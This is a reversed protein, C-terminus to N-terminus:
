KICMIDGYAGAFVADDWGETLMGVSRGNYCQGVSNSSCDFFHGMDAVMTFGYTQDSYLDKLSGSSNQKITLLEERTPVRGGQAECAKMVGARYGWTGDSTTVGECYKYDESSTNSCDLVLNSVGGKVDVWYDGIKQASDSFLEPKSTINGSTDSSDSSGSSDSLDSSDSVDSSAIYENLLVNSYLNFEFVDQDVKNPGSPGNVDVIVRASGYNVSGDDNISDDSMGTMCVTTGINIKACYLGESNFFVHPSSSETNDSSFYTDGLCYTYDETGCDRSLKLYNRMFKGQANNYDNNVVMLYTDALSYADTNAKLMSAAESILSVTKQLRTAFVRKWYNQVLSPMVLAAVVGIIGIVILMEALTFSKKM